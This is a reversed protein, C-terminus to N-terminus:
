PAFHKMKEYWELRRRKMEEKSITLMDILEQELADRDEPHLPPLDKYRIYQPTPPPPLTAELKALRAKAMSLNVNALDESTTDPRKRSM